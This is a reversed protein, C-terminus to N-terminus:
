TSIKEIHLYNARDDRWKQVFYTLLNEYEKLTMEGPFPLYNVSIDDWDLLNNKEEQFNKL